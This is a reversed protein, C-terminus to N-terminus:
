YMLVFSNLSLAHISDIFSENRINLANNIKRSAINKKIENMIKRMTVVRQIITSSSANSDIIKFYIEFILFIFILKNSKIFDNFTKFFMQLILDFEIEFIKEIIITYVRCLSEHYREIM